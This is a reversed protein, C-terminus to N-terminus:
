LLLYKIPIKEACQLVLSKVNENLKTSPKLVVHPIKDRILTKEEKKFIKASRLVVENNWKKAKIVNKEKTGYLKEQMAKLQRYKSEINREIETWVESNRNVLQKMIDVITNKSSKKFPFKIETIGSEISISADILSNQDKLLVSNDNWLTEQSKKVCSNCNRENVANKSHFLSRSRSKRERNAEGKSNLKCEEKFVLASLTNLIAIQKTVEKIHLTIERNVIRRLDDTLQKINKNDTSDHVIKIKSMVDEFRNKCYEAAKAMQKKLEALEKGFETCLEKMRKGGYKEIIEKNHEFSNIAKLLSGFKESQEAKILVQQLKELVSAQDCM